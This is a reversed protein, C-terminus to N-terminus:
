LYMSLLRPGPQPGRQGSPPQYSTPKDTFGEIKKHDYSIKTCTWDTPKTQNDLYPNKQMNVIQRANHTIM